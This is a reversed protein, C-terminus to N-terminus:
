NSGLCIPCATALRPPLLRYYLASGVRLWEWLLETAALTFLATWWFMFIASVLFLGPHLSVFYPTLSMSLFVFTTSLHGIMLLSGLTESRHVHLFCTPINSPYPSCSFGTAMHLEYVTWMRGICVVREVVRDEEKCANGNSVVTKRCAVVSSAQGGNKAEDWIRGLGLTSRCLRSSLPSPHRM